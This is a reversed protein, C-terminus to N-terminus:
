VRSSQRYFPEHRAPRLLRRLVDECAAAAGQVAQAARGRRGLAGQLITTCPEEARQRPRGPHLPRGRLDGRRRVDRHAHRRDQRAPCPTSCRRRSMSIRIPSRQWDILSSTPPRAPSSPASAARRYGHDQAGGSTAMRFVQPLDPGRRGHGARPARAPRAADGAAHRPRRQHRGRRPRHRHQHRKAEFRTSRRSAAACASTPRATTASAAHRDRGALEIDAENLWVGHGLTLAPGLLGFRDLYEVATGGGRRRAYEKQYATELLHM